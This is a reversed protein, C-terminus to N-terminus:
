SQGAEGSILLRSALQAVAASLQLPESISKFTAM